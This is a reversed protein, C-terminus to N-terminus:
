QVKYGGVAMATGMKTGNLMITGEKNLLNMLINSQQKLYQNQETLLQVMEKSNGLSTGGAAVVTDEPLTKIVFDKASTQTTTEEFGKSKISQLTSAADRAKSDIIMALLPSILKEFFGVQNSALKNLKEIQQQQQPTYKKYDESSKITEYSKKAANERGEAGLVFDSFTKIADALQDLYGGDIFDSFAEKAKELSQNFKEQATTSKEAQELTKGDLIGQELAAVKNKLNIDGSVRAREQLDKLTKGGVKELVKAKYLMDGMEDASMGLSKAIAEQQIVNMAAFKEQTIGQNAIEQTLGAIDHNLAYSRAKELNLDKGTLLEAELESSISQEFDLLSSGIKSVQDLTLGLKKAELTTKVLSGLNDKFNIQILKSTKAIDSFVKKGTTLLKNQNAFAAIQDYAIDKGKDAELNFAVFAEQVGFAEEKSLGLNKTLIIQSEIMKDNASTIFDTLETLDTYAETVDKTTNYISDITFKTDKLSNYIARSADKSIMLGKALKTVREDAAFMAGIFFQIAEVAMSILAFPGLAKKIVPGLASFGSTLSKLGIQAQSFMPEKGAAQRQINIKTMRSATDKSASSMAEFPGSLKRLGPIDKVIESLGKFANPVILKNLKDVGAAAGKLNKSYQDSSIVAETLGKQVREFSEIQKDIAKQEDITAGAKESLLTNIKKNVYTQERLLSLQSKNLANQRKSIDEKNSSLKLDLESLDFNQESLKNIEKLSRRIASKFDSEKNLAKLGDTVEDNISRTIDLDKIREENIQKQTKLVDKLLDNLEQADQSQKSKAM